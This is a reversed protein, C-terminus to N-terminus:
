SVAGHNVPTTPSPKRHQSLWSKERSYREAQIGCPNPIYCTEGNAVVSRPSSFVIFLLVNRFTQEAASVLRIIEGSNADDSLLSFFQAPLRSYLVSFCYEAVESFFMCSNTLFRRLRFTSPVRWQKLLMASVVLSNREIFAVSWTTANSGLARVTVM